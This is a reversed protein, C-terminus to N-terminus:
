EEKGWGWAWGGARAQARWALARGAAFAGSAWLARAQHCRLLEGWVWYYYCGAGVLPPFMELGIHVLLEVAPACPARANSGPPTVWESLRADVYTPAIRRGAGDRLVVQATFLLELDLGDVLQARLAQAAARAIEVVEQRRGWTRLDSLRQWWRVQVGALRLGDGDAAIEGEALRLLAWKVAQEGGEILFGDEAFSGQIGPALYLLGLAAFVQGPNKRDIKIKMPARRV